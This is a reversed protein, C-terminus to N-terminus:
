SGNCQETYLPEAFDNAANSNLDGCIGCTNGSYLGPGLMFLASHGYYQLWGFSMKSDVEYLGGPKEWVKFDYYNDQMPFSFGHVANLVPKGNININVKGREDPILEVFNGGTYLKVALPKPGKVKKMLFAFKPNQTCDAAALTYCPSLSHSITANDWSIVRATTVICSSVLGLNTNPRPFRANYLLPAFGLSSYDWSLDRSNLTINVVPEKVPFEVSATLEQRADEKNLPHLLELVGAVRQSLSVLKQPLKEYKLTATYKRLTALQRAEEQCAPTFPTFTDGWEERNLSDKKCQNYPWTLASTAMALQEMTAEAKARLNLSSGGRPCYGGPANNGWVTNLHGTITDSLPILDPHWPPMNWDAEVCMVSKQTGNVIRTLKLKLDHKAHGAMREHIANVEIQHLPREQGHELHSLTVFIKRKEGPLPETPEGPLIDTSARVALDLETNRSGITRLTSIVGCSGRPAQILAVDALHIVGLLPLGGPVMQYNNTHPDLLGAGLKIYDLTSYPRDCDFLSVQLKAGIDDISMDLVERTKKNDPYAGVTHYLSCKKCHHYLASEAALGKIFVGSRLHGVSGVTDNLPGLSVHINKTDFTIKCVFPIQGHFGLSRDVGHWIDSLPNFSKLATEVSVSLRVDLRNHRIINRIDPDQTFDGRLSALLSSTLQISAPTGLLTPQTMELLVPYWLRQANIHFQSFFTTIKDKLTGASNFTNNLHYCLVVRGERKLMIEIHVPEPDKPNVKMSRLLEVLQPVKMNLTDMKMLAAQAAESVGQLKLYVSVDALMRQSAHKAFSLLIVSPQFTRESGVMFLQLLGGVGLSQHEYDIIYNGTPWTRDEPEPVIRVLQSAAQALHSYCPYKTQALSHLTTYFFNYLHNNNQGRIYWYLSWYRAPGDVSVMLMTLAAVRMELHESSNTLIPWYLQYVKGPSRPATSMTAWVALFRIHHSSHRSLDTVNGQIVPELFDVVQGMEMNSLGELYLMQQEYSTSETFKDVYVRIYKDVTEPRCGGNACRKHLLSAFTLIATKQVDVGVDEISLMPECAALMEEASRRSVSHQRLYFPLAMLMQLSTWDTVKRDKILTITLLVADHTGIQPLLEMFLNGMTEQEYSTGVMVSNYLHELTGYDLGALLELVQVATQEHLKEADPVVNSQGLRQAMRELLSMVRACTQDAAEKTLPRHEDHLYALGVTRTAGQREIPQTVPELRELELSQSAQMYQMEANSQFPQLLLIGSSKAHLLPRAGDPGQAAPALTYVAESHSTLPSQTNASCYFPAMNSWNEQNWAECGKHDTFKRVTQNGRESSVIYKVKCKGHVTDEAVEAVPHGADRVARLDVQLLSALGRKMNHAWLPEDELVEVATVRGGDYSLRFAGLLPSEHVPAPDGVAPLAGVEGSWLSTRLESVQVLAGGVQGQVRVRASLQWHSLVHSPLKTGTDVQARWQFSSEVGDQFLSEASSWPLLPLLLVLVAVAPGFAASASAMTSAAVPRPRAAAPRIGESVTGARRDRSPEAPEAREPNLSARRPRRRLEDSEHDSLGLALPFGRGPVHADPRLGPPAPRCCACVYVRVCVCM